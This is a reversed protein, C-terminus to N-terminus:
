CCAFCRVCSINLKLVSSNRAADRKGNGGRYKEEGLEIRTLKKLSVTEGKKSREVIKGDQILLQTRYKDLFRNMFQSHTTLKM